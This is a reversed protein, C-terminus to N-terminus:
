ESHKNIGIKVKVALVYITEDLLDTAHTPNRYLRLACTSGAVPTGGLTFPGIIATRLRTNATGNAADTVEAATGWATTVFSDGDRVAMGQIGFRVGNSTTGTSYYTVYAYLPQLDYGEPLELDNTAYKQSTHVFGLSLINLLSTAFEVQTAIICGGTTTAIWSGAKLTVSIYKKAFSDATKRKMTGNESVILHDTTGVPATTSATEAVLVANVVTVPTGAGKVAVGTDAWACLQDAVASGSKTLTGTGTGDEGGTAHPAWATTYTAGVVPETTAGSTHGSTCIWSGIGHGSEAHQVIDNLAYYTATIWTGKQTLTGPSGSSGRQGQTGACFIEWYASPIVALAYTSTVIYSVLIKTGAPLLDTFIIQKSAGVTTYDTTRTQVLGNITVIENGDAFVNDVTFTTLVGNPEENVKESLIIGGADGTAALDPMNAASSAHQAKCTFSAGLNYVTDGVAYDEATLWQGRQLLPVATGITVYKEIPATM